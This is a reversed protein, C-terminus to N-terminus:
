RWRWEVGGYVARGDGPEFFRGPQTVDDADVVVASVYDRDTLNRLELFASLGSREHDYGARVGWIAHEPAQVTNASDVYWDVPVVEVGPAIWLGSPHRWRLEARLFHRPVGPLDNDDFADDNVYKFYSLTYAASAHLGRRLLFDLGVELGRHRSRAINEYRPITFLGAGTPDVNLNRIEDWLEVDYAAVDWSVREGLRGRTGVELQYARQPDLDSLDGGLNGPAQLEFLV